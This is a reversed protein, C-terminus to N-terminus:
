VKTSLDNGQSIIQDHLLRLVRAKYAELISQKYDSGDHNKM